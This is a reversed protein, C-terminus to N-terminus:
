WKHPLGPHLKPEQSGRAEGVEAGTMSATQATYWNISFRENKRVREQHNLREFLYIELCVLSCPVFWGLAGINSTQNM